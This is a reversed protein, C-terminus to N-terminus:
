AIRNRQRLRSALETRNAVSLKLMSSSLHTKVTNVSVVLASAIEQNSLGQSALSAVDLERPTLDLRPSEQVSGRPALRQLLEVLSSSARDKTLFAHAGHRLAEKKAVDGYGTIAVIKAEPSLARIRSVAMTGRADPLRLDLLIIDPQLKQLLVAAENLSAATGLVTFGGADELIRVIGESVVRHDDVILVSVSLM